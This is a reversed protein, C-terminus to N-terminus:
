SISELKRLLEPKTLTFAIHKCMQNTNCSNCSLRGNIGNITFVKNLAVDNVYIANKDSSLIELKPFIERLIPEVEASNTLIENVFTRLSQNRKNAALKLKEYTEVSVIDITPSRPKVM